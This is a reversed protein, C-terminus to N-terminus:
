ATVHERDDIATGIGQERATAYRKLRGVRELGLSATPGVGALEESVDRVCTEDRLLGLSEADSQTTRGTQRAAALRRERHPDRPQTRRRLQHNRHTPDEFWRQSWRYPKEPNAARAAAARRGNVIAAGAVLNCYAHSIGIYGNRTDNHDLHWEEGAHIPEGCRACTACGSNVLPAIAARRRQHTKGWGGRTTAGPPKRRKRPVTM